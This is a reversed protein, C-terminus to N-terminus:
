GAAKPPDGPEDWVSPEGWISQGSTPADSAYPPRAPEGRLEALVARLRAVIDVLESKDLHIQDTLPLDDADSVMGDLKDVLDRLDRLVREM